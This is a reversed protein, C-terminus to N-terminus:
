PDGPVGIQRGWRRWRPVVGTPACLGAVGLGPSPGRGSPPTPATVGGPYTLAVAFPCPLAPRRGGPAPPGGGCCRAAATINRSPGGSATSSIFDTLDVRASARAAGRSRALSARGGTVTALALASTGMRRAAPVLHQNRGATTETRRRLRGPRGRGAAARGRDLCWGAQEARGDAIYRSTARGGGGAAPQRARDAARTPRRAPWREAEHRATALHGAERLPTSWCGDAETTAAAMRGRSRGARRLPDAGGGRHRRRGARRPM